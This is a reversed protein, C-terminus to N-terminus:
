PTNTFTAKIVGTTPFSPTGDDCVGPYFSVRVLAGPSALPVAETHAGCFTGYGDSVGDGDVDGQSIFGSPGLGTADTIEIKVHTEGAAPPIEICELSGPSTMPCAGASGAPGGAIGIGGMTYPVEVIREIPVFKKKKKKKKAEAPGVAFAGLVLAAMIMVSLIKKM